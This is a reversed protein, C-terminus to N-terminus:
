YWDRLRVDINPDRSMVLKKFKKPDSGRYHYPYVIGPKFALVAEAAQEETMTYPLNFCIFAVDINKLARMEPIDETDGSIYIRKGGITLVYGNGVGKPHYQLRAATTNYAPVALILVNDITTRDGNGLVTTKSKLAPPMQNAVAAPAVIRTGPQIVAELTGADYHDGHGHTLLILDPKPLGEYLKAGGVPDSYITKGNWQMAFSAHQIPHIFLTSSDTLIKDGPLPQASAAAAVLALAAAWALAAAGRLSLIRVPYTHM